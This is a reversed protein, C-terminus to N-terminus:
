VFISDQGYNELDAWPIKSKERIKTGKSKEAAFFTFLFALSLEGPSGETMKRRKAVFFEMPIVATKTLLSPFHFFPWAKLFQIRHPRKEM